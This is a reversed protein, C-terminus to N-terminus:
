LEPNIWERHSSGFLQTFLPVTRKVRRFSCKRIVTRARATFQSGEPVGQGKNNSLRHQIQPKFFFVKDKPDIVGKAPDPALLMRTKPIMRIIDGVKEIRMGDQERGPSFALCKMGRTKGGLRKQNTQIVPM